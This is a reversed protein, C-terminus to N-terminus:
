KVKEKELTNAKGRIIKKYVGKIRFAEQLEIENILYFGGSQLRDIKRKKVEKFLKIKNNITVHSVHYKVCADRISIFEPINSKSTKLILQQFEKMLALQNMEINELRKFISHLAKTEILSFGEM